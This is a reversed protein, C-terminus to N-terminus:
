DLDPSLVFFCQMRHVRGQARRGKARSHVDKYIKSCECECIEIFIFLYDCFFLSWYFFLVAIFVPTLYEEGNVELIVVSSTKLFFLFFYLYVSDSVYLM